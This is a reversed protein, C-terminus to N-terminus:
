PCVLYDPMCPEPCPEYDIGNITLAGSSPSYTVDTAGALRARRTGRLM